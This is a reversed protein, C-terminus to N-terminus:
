PHIYQRSGGNFVSPHIYRRDNFDPRFVPFCHTAGGCLKRNPRHPSSNVVIIVTNQPAYNIVPRQPDSSPAESESTPVPQIEVPNLSSPPMAANAPESDIMFNRRVALGNSDRVAAPVNNLSDTFHIVGKSDAWQYLDAALTPSDMVLCLVLVFYATAIRIKEM